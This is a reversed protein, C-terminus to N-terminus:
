DSGYKKSKTGILLGIFYCPMCLFMVLSQSKWIWYTNLVLQRLYKESDDHTEGQHHHYYGDEDFTEHVNM